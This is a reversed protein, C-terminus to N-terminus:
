GSFYISLINNHKAKSPGNCSGRIISIRAERKGPEKLAAAGDSGWMIYQPGPSTGCVGEPAECTGRGLPDGPFVGEYEVPAECYERGLPAGPFVGEHEVPARCAEGLLPDGPFVWEYTLLLFVFLPLFLNDLPAGPFLSGGVYLTGWHSKAQSKVFHPYKSAALIYVWSIWWHCGNRAAGLGLIKRLCFVTM